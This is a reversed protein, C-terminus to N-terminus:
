INKFSRSTLDAMTKFNESMEFAIEKGSLSYLMFYITTGMNQYDKLRMCRKNGREQFVSCILFCMDAAKGLRKKDDLNKELYDVVYWSEPINKVTYSLLKSVYLGCKFLGTNLMKNKILEELILSRFEEELEKENVEVLEERNKNKKKILLHTKNLFDDLGMNEPDLKAKKAEDFNIIKNM